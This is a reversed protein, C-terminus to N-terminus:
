SYKEIHLDFMQPNQEDMINMTRVLGNLCM